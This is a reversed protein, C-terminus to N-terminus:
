EFVNGTISRVNTTLTRAIAPTAFLLFMYGYLHLGLKRGLKQLFTMKFM